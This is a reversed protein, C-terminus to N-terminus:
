SPFFRIPYTGTWVPVDAKGFNMMRIRNLLKAELSDNDLESSVISISSVRGSPQIELRVVVTGQMGPHRRLARQYLAYLATKHQDFVLQISKLSRSAQGGTVSRGSSGAIAGVGSPVEVQTTSRGALETGYGLSEVGGAQAQVDAVAGEGINTTILSREPQEAEVGQALDRQSGISEVSTNQLEKLAEAAAMLGTEEAQVEPVPQPEPQPTPEPKPEPKPEPEPKPKPEPEPKPKPEPTPEPVQIPEPPEREKIVLEVIREPKKEELPQQLSLDPTPLFPILLSLAAMPLLIALLINAYRRDAAEDQTWPLDTTMATATM